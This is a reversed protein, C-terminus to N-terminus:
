AGFSGYPADSGALVEIGASRFRDETAIAAADDADLARQWEGRRAEVLAANTCV